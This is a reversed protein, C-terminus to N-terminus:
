PRITFLLYILLYIFLYRFLYVLAIQYNGRHKEVKFKKRKISYWISVCPPNRQVLCFVYDGSLSFEMGSLLMFRFTGNVSLRRFSEEVLIHLWGIFLIWSFLTFVSQIICYKGEPDNMTWTKRCEGNQQEYSQQDKQPWSFTVQRMYM